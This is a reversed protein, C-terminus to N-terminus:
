NLREIKDQLLKLTKLKENNLVSYIKEETDGAVAVNEQSPNSQAFPNRNMMAMPMPNKLMSNEEQLKQFDEERQKQKELKVREQEQMMEEVWEDYGSIRLIMENTLPVGMDKLLKLGNIIDLKSLFSIDNFQYSLKVDDDEVIINPTDGEPNPEPQNDPVPPENSTINTNTALMLKFLPNLWYKALWRKAWRRWFQLEGERWAILLEEMNSYKVTEKGLLASPVGIAKMIADDLLEVLSSYKDLDTDTKWHEVKINLRHAFWRGAAKAANAIWASMVSDETEPPFMAMLIGAYHTKAAEKINQNMIIRKVMSVNIISEYKSVGTFQANTSVNGDTNVIYILDEIPLFKDKEDVDIPVGDAGQKKVDLYEVSLIKNTKANVKIRGLRKSNLLKLATPLKSGTNVLIVNPDQLEDPSLEQRIIQIAARGYVLASITGDIGKDHLEIDEDCNLKDIENKTNTYKTNQYIQKLAIRKESDRNYEYVTDLVTKGERGWMFHAKKQVCETATWDNIYVDELIDLQNDTYRKDIIAVDPENPDQSAVGIENIELNLNYKKKLEDFLKELTLDQETVIIHKIDKRIEQYVQEGKM